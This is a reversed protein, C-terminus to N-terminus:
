WFAFLLFPASILPHYQPYHSLPPSLWSAMVVLGRQYGQERTQKLATLAASEIANPEPLLLAVRIDIKKVLNINTILIM